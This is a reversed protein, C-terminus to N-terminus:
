PWVPGKFFRKKEYYSCDNKGNMDECTRQLTVRQYYSDVSYQAKPHNCIDTNDKGMFFYECGKCYVKKKGKRTRKKDEM